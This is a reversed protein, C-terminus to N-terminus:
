VVLLIVMYLLERLLHEMDRNEDVPNDEDSAFDREEVVWGRLLPHGSIVGSDIVCALPTSSSPSVDKITGIEDSFIAESGQYSDPPLDVKAVLDCNLLKELLRKNVEARLIVVNSVQATSFHNGQNLSILRIIDWIVRQKNETKGDYWVQVDVYFEDQDPLGKEKLREGKREESTVERAQLFGDFFNERMKKPLCKKEKSGNQYLEIDELFNDLIKPSPCQVLYKYKTKKDNVKKEQEEVISINFRDLGERLDHNESDFELVFLRDPSVGM